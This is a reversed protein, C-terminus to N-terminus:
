MNQKVFCFDKSAKEFPILCFKSRAERREFGVKVFAPEYVSRESLGRPALVYDGVNISNRKADDLDIIDSLHVTEFDDEPAESPGLFKVLFDHLALQFTLFINPFFFSAAISIFFRLNKFHNLYHSITYKQSRYRGACLCVSCM